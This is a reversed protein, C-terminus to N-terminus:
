DRVIRKLRLLQGDSKQVGNGIHETGIAGVVAAERTGTVDVIRPNRGVVDRTVTQGGLGSWRLDVTLSGPSGAALGHIYDISGMARATALKADVRLTLDATEIILNDRIACNADLQPLADLWLGSPLYGQPCMYDFMEGYISSATHEGAHVSAQFRGVHVNGGVGPLPGRQIWEVVVSRDITVTAASAPTGVGSALVIAIAGAAGALIRTLKM